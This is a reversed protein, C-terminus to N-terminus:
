NEVKSPKKGKKMWWFAIKGDAIRLYDFHGTFVPMKNVCLWILPPMMVALVVFQVVHDTIGLLRGILMVILMHFGLVVMTNRGVYNFYPLRRVLQALCYLTAVATIISAYFQVFSCHLFMTYHFWLYHRPSVIYCAVASVVMVSAMLRWDYSRLLLKRCKAVYHFVPFLLVTAPVAMIFYAIALDSHDCYHRYEDIHTWVFYALAMAAIGVIVKGAMGLRRELLEALYHLVFVAFLSRVYWLPYNMIKGHYIWAFMQCKLKYFTMDPDTVIHLGLYLGEFLFFPVIIRNFMRLVFERPTCDKYMLASIFFFGPIVASNLMSWWITVKFDITHNWVIVMMIFGRYLDIFDYRQPKTTKVANIAETM